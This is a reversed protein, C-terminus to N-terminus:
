LQCGAERYYMSQRAAALASAATNRARTPTNVPRKGHITARIHAFSAVRTQTELTDGPHSPQFLGVVNRRFEAPVAGDGCAALLCDRADVTGLLLDSVGLVVFNVVRPDAQVFKIPTGGKRQVKQLITGQLRVVADREGEGDITVAYGQKAALQKAINATTREAQQV